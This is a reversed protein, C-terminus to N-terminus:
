ANVTFSQTWGFRGSSTYFRQAIIPLAPTSSIALVNTFLASGQDVKGGFFQRLIWTGPDVDWRIVQATADSTSGNDADLGAAVPFLLATLRNSNPVDDPEFTYEKQLNAGSISGKYLQMKSEGMFPGTTGGLGDSVQGSMGAFIDVGTRAESPILITQKLGPFKPTVTTPDVDITPM